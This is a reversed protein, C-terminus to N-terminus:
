WTVESVLVSACQQHLVHGRLMFGGYNSLAMCGREMSAGVQIQEVALALYRVLHSIQMIRYVVRTVLKMYLPKLEVLFMMEISSVSICNWEIM